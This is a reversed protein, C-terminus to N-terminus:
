YRVVITITDDEENTKAEIEMDQEESMDAVVTDDVHVVLNNKSVVYRHIEKVPRTLRMKTALKEILDSVTLHDLYVARHVDSSPFRAFLSLKAIRRRQQPVYTPDVDVANYTYGPNTSFAVPSTKTPSHTLQRPRKTGTVVTSSGEQAHSLLTQNPPMVCVPPSSPIETFITYPKSQAYTLWLPHPEGHKGRLKELQKEIHKADDKNKREAGKDRFLKIKSFTTEVPCYVEGPVHSEM